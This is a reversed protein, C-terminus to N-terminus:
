QRFVGFGHDAPSDLSLARDTTIMVVSGDSPQSPVFATVGTAIVIDSPDEALILEVSVERGLHVTIARTQVEPLLYDLLHRMEEFYPVEHMHRLRGGLEDEREFLTVRHERGAAVRAAELGVPGGGVMVVHLSFEAQDRELRPWLYERGVTPNIACEM